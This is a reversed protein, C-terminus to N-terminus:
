VTEALAEVEAADKIMGLEDRLWQVVAGAIFISGELAYELKGDIRWAVTTLLNNASPIAQEGTHLLMFCGTGYSNKVMGPRTCQQGFLAAQQDGAMGAIPLAAGLLDPITEGCVGSSDVVEPLMSRPVKLIELLEDDWDGDHINFFLTRSANSADTVHKEGNTLNWILWSDITGFALEGAEARARAGEVHELMWAVKTGSFYADLILGTKQQFTELHGAERLANCHGSTRRDQWVLAHHIPEGTKRDWVVTTERQNVIGIAGIDEAAVDNDELVAQAVALQTSWIEQPDHEVWGPKPYHQKYEQQAVGGIAGDQDILLARSSTTGQDLALIYRM